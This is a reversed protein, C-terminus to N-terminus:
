HILFTVTEDIYWKKSDVGDVRWNTAQFKAIREFGLQNAIMSAAYKVKDEKPTHRLNYVLDIWVENLADEVKELSFNQTELYACAKETDKYNGRPNCAEFDWTANDLVHKVESLFNKTTEKLTSM